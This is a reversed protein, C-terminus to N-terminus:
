PTSIEWGTTNHRPIGARAKPEPIKGKNIHNRVTSLSLNHETVFAHFNSYIDFQVGNPNIFIMHKASHHKIGRQADGIKKRIIDNHHVTAIGVKGKSINASHKKSKPVGVMNDRLKQKTEESLHRGRLSNSIKDKVHQPRHTGYLPHRTGSGLGCRGGELKNTLPGEDMCSRGIKSIYNVELDFADDELLNEAIKFIIPDNGTEHKIKRILNCKHSNKLINYAENLHTNCRSDSGKGVYFPEFEFTIEDYVFTGSIRPDLYIYVYYKDKM